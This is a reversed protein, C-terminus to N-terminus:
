DWWNPNDEQGGEVFPESTRVVDEVIMEYITITPVEYLKAM